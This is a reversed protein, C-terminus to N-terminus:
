SLPSTSHRGFLKKAIHPGAGGLLGRLSQIEPPAAGLRREPSRTYAMISHAGRTDVSFTPFRCNETTLQELARARRQLSNIINIINM